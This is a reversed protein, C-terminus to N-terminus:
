MECISGASDALDSYIARNWPPCFFCSASRKQCSSIPYLKLDDNGGIYINLKVGKCRKLISSNIKWPTQGKPM